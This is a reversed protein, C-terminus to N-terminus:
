GPRDPGDISRGSDLSGPGAVTVRYPSVVVTVTQEVPDKPTAAGPGTRWLWAAGTLTAMTLIGVAWM